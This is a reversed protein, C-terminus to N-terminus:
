YSIDRAQWACGNWAFEASATGSAEHRTGTAIESVSGRYSVRVKATAGSVSSSTISYSYSLDTYVSGYTARASDIWEKVVRDVADGL